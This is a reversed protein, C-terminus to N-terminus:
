FQVDLEIIEKGRRVKIKVKQGKKLEGLQHMYDYINKIQTEDIEIITDGKKVGAKDAPGGASVGDVGMGNKTTGTIDPMIGMKVKMSQGYKGRQKVKAKEFNLDYNPNTLSDLLNVSLDAVWEMGQFNIKEVDDDPTHYDDHLGSNFFLVPIDEAYFSAQDSGSYGGGGLELKLPKRDWHSLLSEFERATKVGSISLASDKVRGVMDFNIMAKIKDKPFPLNDVFYKSGILGMEEAGFLVFAMNSKPSHDKYYEALMMVMAVGSANDDAGNHVEHEEPARSGSGRGGYGLHDYHAGVVVWENSETGEVYAALNATKTKERDFKVHVSATLEGIQKNIKQVDKKRLQRLSLNSHGVIEQLYTRSLQIVPLDVAVISRSYNFPYYEGDKTLDHRAAILLGIAGKKRAAIVDGILARLPPTKNPENDIYILAWKGDIKVDTDKVKSGVYVVEGNVSTEASFVFPKFDENLVAKEEELTLTTQLNIDVDTEIEFKQQYGFSFKGMWDRYFLEDLYDHAMEDGKTGPYRGELKDDALYKLVKEGTEINQAVTWAPILLLLILIITSYRM